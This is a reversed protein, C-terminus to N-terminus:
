QKKGKLQDTYDKGSVRRAEIKGDKEFWIRKKPLRELVAIIRQPPLKSGRRRVVDDSNFPNGIGYKNAIIVADKISKGEVWHGTTFCFNGNNIQHGLKYRVVVYYIM